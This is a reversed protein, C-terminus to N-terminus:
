WLHAPLAQLIAHHDMGDAGLPAHMTVHRLAQHEVGQCLCHLNVKVDLLYFSQFLCGGFLNQFLGLGHLAKPFPSCWLVGKSFPQVVALRQSLAGCDLAKPFPSLCFLEFSKSFLKFETEGLKVCLVKPFPNLAKPFSSSNLKVGVQVPVLLGM